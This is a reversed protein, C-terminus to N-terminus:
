CAYYNFRGDAISMTPACLARLRLSQWLASGTVCSISLLSFIFLFFFVDVKYARSLCTLWKWIYLLCCSSVIGRSVPERQCLHLSFLLLAALNLKFVLPLWVASISYHPLYLQLILVILHFVFLSIAQAPQLTRGRTHLPLPATLYPPRSLHYIPNHKLLPLIFILM